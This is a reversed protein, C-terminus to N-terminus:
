RGNDAGIAQRIATAAESLHEDLISAEIPDIGGQVGADRCADAREQVIVAAQEMGAARHRAAYDALFDAAAHHVTGCLGAMRVAKAAPKNHLAEFLDAVDLAEQAVPNSSM